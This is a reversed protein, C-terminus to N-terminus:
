RGEGWGVLRYRTESGSARVPGEVRNQVHGVVEGIEISNITVADRFPEVLGKELASLPQIAGPLNGTRTRSAGDDFRGCVGQGSRWVDGLV